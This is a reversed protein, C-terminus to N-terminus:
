VLEFDSLIVMVDSTAQRSFNNLKGSDNVQKFYQNCLNHITDYIENNIQKVRNARGSGSLPEEKLQKKVMLNIAEDLFQKGLPSKKNM